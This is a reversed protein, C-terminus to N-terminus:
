FARRTAKDAERRQAEDAAQEQAIVHKINKIFYFRLQREIRGGRRRISVGCLIEDPNRWVLAMDGERAGEFREPQGWKAQLTAFLDPDDDSPEVVLYLPKGTEQFFVFRVFRFPLGKLRSRRYTLTTVAHERRAGPVPNLAQHFRHIDPFHTRTFAANILVLDIPGRRSIADPGLRDVLRERLGRSLITESHIDYFSFGAPPTAPPVTESRAVDRKTRTLAYISALMLILLGISLCVMLIKSQRSLPM